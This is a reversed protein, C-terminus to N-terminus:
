LVLRHFTLCKCYYIFVFWHFWMNQTNLLLYFSLATSDLSKTYESSYISQKFYPISAFLCIFLFCDCWSTYRYNISRATNVSSTYDAMNNSWHNENINHVLRFIIERDDFHSTSRHYFQKYYCTNCNGGPPWWNNNDFWTVCEMVDPIHAM